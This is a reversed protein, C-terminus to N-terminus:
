AIRAFRKVQPKPMRLVRFQMARMAAYWRYGPQVQDKGFKHELKKKLSFGLLVVDFISVGLYGWIAFLSLAQWQAPLFTMFLIFVMAPILFEGINIRSDVVDRVFRRQPGKDRAPLFREDGQMMGVRARERQEAEKRRQLKKAEKNQASSIYNSRANQADKRKPTPRGKGIEAATENSSHDTSNAM